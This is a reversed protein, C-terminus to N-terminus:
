FYINLLYSKNEFRQKEGWALGGDRCALIPHQSKEENDAEITSSERQLVYYDANNQVVKRMKRKLKVRKM